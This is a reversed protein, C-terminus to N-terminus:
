RSSVWTTFPSEMSTIVNGIHTLLFSRTRHEDELYYEINFVQFDNIILIVNSGDPFRYDLEITIKGALEWHFAFFHQVQLAIIESTMEM